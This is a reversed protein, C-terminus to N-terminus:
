FFLKHPVPIPKDINTKCLPCSKTRKWEQTACDVCASAHGCPDLCARKRKLSFETMCVACEDNPLRELSEKHKAEVQSLKVEVQSVM